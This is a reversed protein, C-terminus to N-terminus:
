YKPDEQDNVWDVAEKFSMIPGDNIQLAPFIEINLTDFTEKDTIITHPIRKKQLKRELVNCAPCNITYLKIM